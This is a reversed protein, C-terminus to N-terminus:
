AAVRYGRKVVTEIGVGAHGLRQRLRGVTVEVVHEDGDLEWVEDLLERKSVVHGFRGVLVRLVDRERETLQVVEGEVALARGQMQIPVGALEFSVSQKAYHDAMAHVMSGLRYRNPVLTVDFGSAEAGAACVPGICVTAVPGSLAAQLDPLMDSADALECLNDIQPRATFTVVDVRREIIAALLRRAPVADDPLTWRYVPVAVVDAGLGQIATALPAGESGDLQIAVRLNTAGRRALEEVMEASTGNPTQWGLDLGATIAAGHAKPGRAFVTSQQLADLLADALDLSEAAEFWARVGIGTSLVTVDPPTAIVARTATALEDEAALPHTRITPGYLVTAGKRELLEIQEQARRDATVGVVLGALPGLVSGNRM